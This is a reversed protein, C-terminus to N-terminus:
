SESRGPEFSRMIVFSLFVTAGFVFVILLYPKSVVEAALIKSMVKWYLVSVIIILVIIALISVISRGVLTANDVAESKSVNRFATVLSSVCLTLSSFSLGACIVGRLIDVNAKDETFYIGLSFMPAFAGFSTLFWWVVRETNRM